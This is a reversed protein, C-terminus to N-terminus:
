EEKGAPTSLKNDVFLQKVALRAAENEAMKKRPGRGRAVRNNAIWVEVVFEKQHDPGSEDILNYRPIQQYKQQTWEQLQSKYDVLVRGRAMKEAPIILNRRLPEGLIDYSFLLHLAGCVAELASGLTSARQRGGSAEEGIGLLLLPALGLDIALKGLIKRSVMAARMKSLAGESEDPHTEYLYDTAALGIVADGLFELRENDIEVNNEVRWSRHTLAQNILDYSPPGPLGFRRVWEALGSRRDEDM